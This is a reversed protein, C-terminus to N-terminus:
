SVNRLNKNVAEVIQSKTEIDTVDFTYYTENVEKSHGLLSARVSSPVGNYEMNSNLTKRLAHIGRVEIKCQRCKNKMCASINRFGIRGNQNAFVFECLYGNQEEVSKVTDLLSRIQPTIPFKRDKKNKTKDIYYSGDKANYKESKNIIFYDDYINDWTLAAIEGVRMGTLMAFEVAYSTIYEPKKEHDQQLQDLLITQDTKNIIKEKKSRASEFCYGYFDKAKIYATPSRNIYGKEEAYTFTSNVYEFLRKTANKCLKLKDILDKIFVKVSEKTFSSIEEEAAENNDFYRRADTIYKAVSNATVMKDHYSRWEYYVDLFSIRKIADKESYYKVIVDEIDKQTNKKIFRRGKEDDPLYTCWKGDKGQWVSYTHQKLYKVRKAMDIQNQIHTLDIIGNELAYHLLLEKDDM